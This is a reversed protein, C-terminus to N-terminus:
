HAKDLGAIALHPQRMSTLGRGFQSVVRAPGPRDGQSRQWASARRFYDDAIEFNAAGEASAGALEWPAAREAEDDSIALTQELYALAQDHSHLAAAREAASRLWERAKAKLVQAASSEPTAHYAALYHSAVVVAFEPDPM